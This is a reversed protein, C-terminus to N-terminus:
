ETKDTEANGPLYRLWTDEFDSRFYGRGQIGDTYWKRSEVGYSAIMRGLKNSNLVMQGYEVTSWEAGDIVYLRALLDRALLREAGSAEFVIRIDRLLRLPQSLEVDQKAQESTMYLCAARATAGWDNGALDAVAILPLWIDHQRDSIGAPMTPMQRYSEGDPGTNTPFLWAGAQMSWATLAQAIAQGQPNAIYEHFPYVVEGSTKRRMSLIIARDAITDPPDGIGAVAVACYSPLEIVANNGGGVCRIYSAGKRYGSNLIARTDEHAVANDGFITDIEDILLTPAKENILRAMAAPSINGTMIGGKSIRMLLELLRTKGTQKEPSKIALRPTTDLWPLLYTHAVWLTVALHAAESPFVVYQGLFEYVMRLVHHTEAEHLQIEALYDEYDTTQVDTM